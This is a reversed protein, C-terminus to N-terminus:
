NNTGFVNNIYDAKDKAIYSAYFIVMKVNDNKIRNVLESFTKVGEVDFISYHKDTFVSGLSLELGKKDADILANGFDKLTTYRNRNRGIQIELYLGRLSEKVEKVSNLFTANSNM